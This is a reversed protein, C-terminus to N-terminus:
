VCHTRPTSRVDVRIDTGTHLAIGILEHVQDFRSEGIGMAIRIPHDRNAGLQLGLDRIEVGSIIQDREALVRKVRKIIM